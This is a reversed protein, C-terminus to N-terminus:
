IHMHVFYVVGSAFIIETEQEADYKHSREQSQEQPHSALWARPDLFGICLDSVSNRKRHENRNKGAPTAGKRHVIVENGEHMEKWAFNHHNEVMKM